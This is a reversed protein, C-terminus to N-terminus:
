RFTMRTRGSAVGELNIGTDNMEIKVSNLNLTSFDVTVNNPLVDRFLSELQQRWGGLRHALLQNATTELSERIKLYFLESLMADAPDDPEFIFELDKLELRQGDPTFVLDAWTELSGSADGTIAAKVDLEQGKGSLVVNEVKLVRDEFVFSQAALATSIQRSLDAFGLELLLRMNLGPSRPYFQGLPPLPRPRSATESKTGIKPYFILALKTDLTRNQGRLPSLAVGAPRLLLWNDGALHVPQQLQSWIDDAQQRLADLEPLLARLTTRLGKEMQQQFVEEVVPTVDIQAATMECPDLFRTPLIKFQPYIRWDPGWRLRAMLGIVAQRPPEDIGCSGELEFANM